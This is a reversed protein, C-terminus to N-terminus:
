NPDWCINACLNHIALEHDTVLFQFCGVAMNLRTYEVDITQLTQKGMVCLPSLYTECAKALPEVANIFMVLSPDNKETGLFGNSVASVTIKTVIFLLM